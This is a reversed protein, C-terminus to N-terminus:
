SKREVQLWWLCCKQNNSNDLYLKHIRFCLKVM